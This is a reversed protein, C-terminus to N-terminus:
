PKWAFNSVFAGTVQAPGSKMALTEKINLAWLGTETNYLLWRGDPSVVQHFAYDETQWLPLQEGSLDILTFTSKIKQDVPAAIHVLIQQGEASWAAEAKVVQYQQNPVSLTTLRQIEEGRRDGVFVGVTAEQSGSMQRTALFVFQDRGPIEIMDNIRGWNSEPWDIRLAEVAQLLDASPDITILGMAYGGSSAMIIKQGDETWLPQTYLDGQLQFYQNVQDNQLNPQAPMLALYKGNQNLIEAALHAGDPSWSFSKYSLTVYPRPDTPVNTIQALGPSGPEMVFIEVPGGFAEGRDSSFAIRGPDDKQVALFYDNAPNQTLNVPASGGPLVSFIEYNGEALASFIIKGRASNLSAPPLASVLPTAQVPTPAIGLQAAQPRVQPSSDQGDAPTLRLLPLPALPTRALDVQTKIVDLAFLASASDQRSTAALLLWRGDASWAAEALGSAACVGPVVLPKNTQGSQSTTGARNSNSILALQWEGDKECGESGSWMFALLNQPSWSVSTVQSGEPAQWATVASGGIIASSLLPRTQLQSATGPLATISQDVRSLRYPGDTIFAIGKQDPSWDFGGAPVQFVQNDDPTPDNVIFTEGRDVRRTHIQARGNTEMLYALQSGDPAWRPQYADRTFSLRVVENANKLSILYIWTRGDDQAWAGTIALREGDRSWSVPGQWTVEPQDTIQVLRTGSVHLLYIESKGSRDSVFAIWEGDPSWMPDTDAAPNDTLNTSQGDPDLLYIEANGDRTSQFVVPTRFPEVIPPTPSSVTTPTTQRAQASEVTLTETLNAAPGPIFLAYVMFMGVVFAAITGLFKGTSRLLNRSRLGARQRALLKEPDLAPMEGPTELHARLIHQLDKELGQLKRQYARCAECQDLHSQLPVWEQSSLHADMASQLLFRTQDHRIVSNTADTETPTQSEALQLTKMLRDRATGLRTRATNQGVRMLLAIQEITYGHFYRLALPIQHDIDLQLYAAWAASGPPDAPATEAPRASGPRPQSRRRALHHAARVALSKLWLDFLQNAPQKGPTYIAALLADQVAQTALSGDLLISYSLRYLSRQHNQLLNQVASIDGERTRQLLLHDHNSM